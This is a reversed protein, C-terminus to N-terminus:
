SPKAMPAEAVFTQVLALVDARAAPLSLLQAVSLKVHAFCLPALGWEAIPRLPLHSPGGPAPPAADM